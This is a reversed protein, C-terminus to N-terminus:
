SIYLKIDGEGVPAEYLFNTFNELGLGVSRHFYLTHLFSLAFSRLKPTTTMRKLGSCVNVFSVFIQWVFKTFFPCPYYTLCIFIPINASSLPYLLIVVGFPNDPVIEFCICLPCLPHKIPLASKDCVGLTFM